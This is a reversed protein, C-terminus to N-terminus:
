KTKAVEGVAIALRQMPSKLLYAIQSLLVERPPINAIELMKTADMYKGEFVGGVIRLSDKHDKAFSQVGRAPALLDAAYAIAIEGDLVPMEGEIKKADLARKLLTKKTVKYLVNDKQLEGGCKDCTTLTNDLDVFGEGCGKCIKAPIPIGWVIQRSINWDIINDLWYTTIKEYHDPIYEIEKSRIKELAKEAIPKM